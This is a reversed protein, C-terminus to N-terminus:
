GGLVGDLAGFIRAWDEETLNSGSPLCLGTDFLREATGDGYFPADQFVPQLHMPKWLPRAEINEEALALRIDDPALGANRSPDLLIATLWRNSYGGEPESQYAIHRGKAQWGAFYQQYREFNARRQAIREDLVRMQGRGIGALVNSLRYNYGIVSHQYHPAPDRAQIALFRARDILGSDQSVLAGGGSTTIIKNGNFSYVGLQGFTGTRRGHLTAGLSEAADEVIPIGHEACIASLEGMRAPTGYLHVPICAKPRIGQEALGTIAARLHAPSMNWTEAESDVFVPHAGLYRVPNASGCFTFSQCLVHDGPGVGLLDLALHLAATGSSLAAAHAVGNYDQLDQEFGDVNPGLPAIWNTDFAQHVFALEESGLHPSSLYIKNM